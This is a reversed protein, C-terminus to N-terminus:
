NQILVVKVKNKKTQTLRHYGDIVKLRDNEKLVIGRIMDKNYKQDNYHDFNKSLVSSLHNEQLFELKNWDVIEVKMKKGQIKDLIFGYELKLVFNIKEELTELSVVELIKDCTQNFLPQKICVDDVEDGYYGKGTVGIWNDPDWIKQRTLIRHVCYKNVEDPNFDYILTTLKKDRQNISDDQNIDDWIKETISNIDINLILVRDISYCRCINEDLCGYAICNTKGDLGWRVLTKFSNQIM